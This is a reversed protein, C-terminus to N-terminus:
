VSMSIWFNAMFSILVGSTGDIDPEVFTDPNFSYHIDQIVDM